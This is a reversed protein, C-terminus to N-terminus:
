DIMKILLNWTFVGFIILYLGLLYMSNGDHLYVGSDSPFPAKSVTYAPDYDVSNFVWDNTVDDRDFSDSYAPFSFVSPSIWKKVIQKVFSVLSSDKFDFEGPFLSFSEGDLDFNLNKLLSCTKLDSNLCRFINSVFVCDINDVLEDFLSQSLTIYNENILFSIVSIVFARASKCLNKDKLQEKEYPSGKFKSTFNATFDNISFLPIESFSFFDSPDFFPQNLSSRNFERSFFNLPSPPIHSSLKTKLNRNKSVIKRALHHNNSHLYLNSNGLEVSGFVGILNSFNYSKFLLSERYPDFCSQEWINATDSSNFKKCEFFLSDHVFSSIGFNGTIDGTEFFFVISIGHDVLIQKMTMSISRLVALIVALRSSVFRSSKSTGVFFEWDDIGITVMLLKVEHRSTVDAGVHGFISNGGIPSCTRSSICGIDRATQFDKLSVVPRPLLSLESVSNLLSIYPADSSPIYAVLFPFSSTLLNLGFPNWASETNNSNAYIDLPSFSSPQQPLILVADPPSTLLDDLSLTFLDATMTPCLTRSKPHNLAQRLTTSDTILIPTCACSNHPESSSTSSIVRLQPALHLNRYLANDLDEFSTVSFCFCCTLLSLLFYLSM